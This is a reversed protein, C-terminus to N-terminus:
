KKGERLTKRLEEGESLGEEESAGPLSASVLSPTIHTYSDSFSETDILPQNASGDDSAGQERPDPTLSTLNEVHTPISSTPDEKATTSHLMAADESSELPTM